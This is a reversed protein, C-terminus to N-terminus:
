WASNCNGHQIVFSEGPLLSEVKTLNVRGLSHIEVNIRQPPFWTQFLRLGFTNSDILKEAMNSAMDPSGSTSKPSPMINGSFHLAYGPGAVESSTRFTYVQKVEGSDKDVIQPESICVTVTPPPPGPNVIIPSGIIPSNDGSTAQQVNTGGSNSQQISRNTKPKKAKSTETKQSESKATGPEEKKVPSENKEQQIAPAPSPITQVIPIAKPQEHFRWALFWIGALGFGVIATVGVFRATAVYWRGSFWGMRYAEFVFIGGALVMALKSPIITGVIALVM